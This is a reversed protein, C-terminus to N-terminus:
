FPLDDDEEDTVPAPTPAAKAAAKKKAPAKPAAAQKIPEGGTTVEVTTPTSQTTGDEERKPADNFFMEILRLENDVQCTGDKAAYVKNSYNGVLTLPKGKTIYKARNIISPDFSSVSLWFTTGDKDTYENNAFRFTVFANGNTTSKVQADAVVRGQITLMRM